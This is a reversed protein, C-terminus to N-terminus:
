RTATGVRVWTARIARRQVRSRWTNAARSVFSRAATEDLALPLPAGLPMQWPDSSALVKGHADLFGFVTWDSRTAAAERFNRRSRRRVQLVPVARRAHSRQRHRSVLLDAENSRDPFLQSPGFTEVYLGRTALTTNVFADSIRPVAYHENLRLWVKGDPSLLVVDDYVSYKAVYERFRRQLQSRERKCRRRHTATNRRMARRLQSHRRRHESVSIPPANSCIECSCM